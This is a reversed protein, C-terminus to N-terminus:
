KVKKFKGKMQVAYTLGNIMQATDVLPLSSGKADKTEQTNEPDVGARITARIDSLVKEGAIGLAQEVPMKVKPDLVMTALKIMMAKHEAYKTTMTSRIFSREPIHGGNRETGYENWTAVDVLTPAEFMTVAKGDETTSTKKQKAEEGRIGVAVQSNKSMEKVQKLFQNMGLDKVTVSGFKAM